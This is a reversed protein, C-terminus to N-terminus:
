TRVTICEVSSLQHNRLRTEYLESKEIYFTNKEEYSFNMGSETFTIM